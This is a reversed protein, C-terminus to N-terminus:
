LEIKIHRNKFKPELEFLQGVEISTLYWNTKEQLQLLHSNEDKWNLDDILTLIIRGTEKCEWMMDIVNTDVVSM